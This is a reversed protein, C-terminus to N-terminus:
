DIVDALARELERADIVYERAHIPVRAVLEKIRAIEVATPREVFHVAISIALDTPGSGRYGWEIGTPSHVSVIPVDAHARGSRDRWLRVSRLERILRM